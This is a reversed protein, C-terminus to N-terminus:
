SKMRRSADSEGLPLVEPKSNATCSQGIDFTARPGAESKEWKRIAAQWDKMPNRGVTWGNSAYHDIFTGADVTNRRERCYDLVEAITPVVFRKSKKESESEFETPLVDACKHASEEGKREKGRWEMGDRPNPSAAVDTRRDSTSDTVVPRPYKFTPRDIRQHRDWGTVHWCIQGQTEFEFILRQRKLEDVFSLVEAETFSDGPFVEMKIRKASAPHVGGDDCFCWVGIFTLRANTSCEVVQESTFFEPKISRIRAM